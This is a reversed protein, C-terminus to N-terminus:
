RERMDRKCIANQSRKTSAMATYAAMIEHANGVTEAAAPPRATKSRRGVPYLKSSALCNRAANVGSPLAQAVNGYCSMLILAPYFYIHLRKSPRKIFSM